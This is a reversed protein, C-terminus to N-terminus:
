PGSTFSRRRVRVRVMVKHYLRWYVVRHPCFPCAWESGGQFGPRDQQHVMHYVLSRAMAVVGRGEPYAEKRAGAPKSASVALETM